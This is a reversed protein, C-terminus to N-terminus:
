IAVEELLGGFFVFILQECLHAGDALRRSESLLLWCLWLLSTPCAIRLCFCCTQLSSQLAPQGITASRKNADNWQMPCQKAKATPGKMRKKKSGWCV